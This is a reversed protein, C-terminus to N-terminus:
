ERSFCLLHMERHHVDDKHPDREQHLYHFVKAAPDVISEEVMVAPSGEGFLQSFVVFRQLVIIIIKILQYYNLNETALSNVWCHKATYLMCIIVHCILVHLPVHLAQSAIHEGERGM